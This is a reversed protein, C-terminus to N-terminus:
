PRDLKQKGAHWLFILCGLLGTAAVALGVAKGFIHDIIEVAFITGMIVAMDSM